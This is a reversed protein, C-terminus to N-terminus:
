LCVDAITTSTWVGATPTLGNCATKSANGAPLNCSGAVATKSPGSAVNSIFYGSSVSGTKEFAAGMVFSGDELKCTTATMTGNVQKITTPAGGSCGTATDFGAFSNGAKTYVPSTGISGIGAGGLTVCFTNNTVEYALYAKHGSAVELKVPPTM